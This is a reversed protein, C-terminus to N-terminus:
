TARREMLAALERTPALIALGGGVRDTVYVLGDSGVFLDNAAAAPKGAAPVGVWHGIERPDQADQVDYVRLGASFYTAFILTDSVYSGPRNEHLNHAGFRAGPVAWSADPPQIKSIVTPSRPDSVDLLRITREPADPGDHVQEDTVAVVDRDGLPMCTHTSGGDWMLGGVKLPRDPRSIDLVVLNADDYGLFAFEGRVLAHHAAYRSGAPWTEGEDAAVHQGPWWWRGAERPASPDALDVVMWMRDNFGELTASLYAYRGGTYVIRHVGRGGVGWFALQVPDAPDDLSYVALGTSVPGEPAAGPPFTEHNVLLLGDAIQVKHTHTGVPAPIQRVLRPSHIDSVDLISTGMRSVGHHGVYVLDEHRLVQMGDGFGGLDHTALVEFGEASVTSTM